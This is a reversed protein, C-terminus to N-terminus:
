GEFDGCNHEKFKSLETKHTFYISIKKEKLDIKNGRIELKYVPANDIKIFLFENSDTTIKLNNEDASYAFKEIRYFNNDNCVNVLDIHKKNIKIKALDCSYCNGSFDIGYKEYVNKSLSDKITLPILEAYDGLNDIQQKLKTATIPLSNSKVTDNQNKNEKVPEDCGSNIIVILQLLTFIINKM